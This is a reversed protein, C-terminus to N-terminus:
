EHLDTTRCFITRYTAERHDFIINEPTTYLSHVVAPRPCAQHETATWTLPVWMLPWPRYPRHGLVHGPPWSVHLGPLVHCTSHLVHVQLRSLVGCQVSFAHLLLHLTTSPGAWPWSHTKGNSHAPLLNVLQACHVKPPICWPLSQHEVLYSFFISMRTDSKIILIATFQKLVSEWSLCILPWPFKPKQLLLQLSRMLM